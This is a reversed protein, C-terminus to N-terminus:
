TNLFQWCLKPITHAYDVNQIKKTNFKLWFQVDELM